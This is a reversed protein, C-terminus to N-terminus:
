EEVEQGCQPCTKPEQHHRIKDSYFFVKKEKSWVLARDQKGVLVGDTRYGDECSFMYDVLPMERVPGVPLNELDLKKSKKKRDVFRGKKDLQRGDITFDQFRWCYMKVSSVSFRNSEPDYYAHESKSEQDDTKGEERAKLLRAVRKWHKLNYGLRSHTENWDTQKIIKNVDRLNM